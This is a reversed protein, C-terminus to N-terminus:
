RLCEEKVMETITREVYVEMSKYTLFSGVKFGVFILFCLAILLIIFGFDNWQITLKNRM